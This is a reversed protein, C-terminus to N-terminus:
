IWKKHIRLLGWWVADQVAQGSHLFFAHKLFISISLCAFPRCPFKLRSLSIFERHLGAHRKSSLDQFYHPLVVHLEHTRRIGVVGMYIEGLSAKIQGLPDMITHPYYSHSQWSGMFPAYVFHASVDVCFIHAGKESISESTWPRHAIWGWIYRRQGCFQPFIYRHRCLWSYSM